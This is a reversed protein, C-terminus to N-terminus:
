SNMGDQRASRKDELLRVAPSLAHDGFKNNLEDILGILRETKADQQYTFLDLQKTSESISQFAALTIGLLRVAIGNWNERFMSFALGEIEDRNRIPQATTRHRTVTTWNKYRITLMLEYSTVHEKKLQLTLKEALKHLTDRIVDISRTDRALTVSHGISKYRDWADPDVPRADEGNALEYLRQGNSGYKAAIFHPDQRALDGITLIGATHFKQETKPGVGHMKGIPLPWLKEQLERKRIIIMGMPKKMNSAMKALFKNPAIGISCPLHLQRAIRNQIDEALSLPHTPDIQASVDLYGEDISAKEVLPTYGKLMEFLQESTHRYLYFDPHRVILGPCLKRAEQVTMTTRIGMKRAEYSSTVIIGHREEPKGAIALPKGKLEPHNAIEVSAYFSNMDIHFIVRASVM